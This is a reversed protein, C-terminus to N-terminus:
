EGTNLQIEEIDEISDRIFGQVFDKQGLNYITRHPDETFASQSVYMQELAKIVIQGDSTAMLRKLAKRFKIM